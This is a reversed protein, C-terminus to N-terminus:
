GVRSLLAPVNLRVGALEYMHRTPGPAYEVSLPAILAECVDSRTAEGTPKGIVVKRILISSSSMFTVLPKPVDVHVTVRPTSPVVGADCTRLWLM